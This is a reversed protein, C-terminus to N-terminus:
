FRDARAAATWEDTPAETPVRVNREQMAEIRGAFTWRKGEWTPESEAAAAAAREQDHMHAGVAAVIAAAEQESADDPIDISVDEPLLNPVEGNAEEATAAESRSTVM